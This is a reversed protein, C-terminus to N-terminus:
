TIARQPRNHPYVVDSEERQRCTFVISIRIFLNKQKKSYQFGAFNRVM